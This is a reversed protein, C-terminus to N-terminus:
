ALGRDRARFATLVSDFNRRREWANSVHFTQRTQNGVSMRFSRDRVAM